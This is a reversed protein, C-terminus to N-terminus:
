ERRYEQWIARGIVAACPGAVLGIAGFLRFGIYMSALAPLPHLGISEGVIRPEAIQRVLTIVGYLILV